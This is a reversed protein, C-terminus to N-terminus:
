RTSKGKGADTKAQAFAARSKALLDGSNGRKAKVAAISDTLQQELETAPAPETYGMRDHIMDVTTGSPPEKVLERAAKAINAPTPELKKETLFHAFSDASAARNSWEADQAQMQKHAQHETIADELKQVAAPDPHTQARLADVQAVLDPPLTARADPTFPAWPEPTGAPGPEWVNGPKFDEATARYQDPTPLNPVRAAAASAPPTAPAPSLAAPQEAPASIGQYAARQKIAFETLRANTASDFKTPMREYAADETAQAATSARMDALAQEGPSLSAAAPTKAPLVKDLVKGFRNALSIAHAAGPHAMGVIDAATGSIQPVSDPLWNRVKQAVAKGAAAAEPTAATAFPAVFGAASGIMGSYNGADFQKQMRAATATAGTGVVPLNRIDPHGAFNKLQDKFSSLIEGAAHEGMDGRDYADKVQDIVPKIAGEYFSRFMGQTEAPADPTTSGGNRPRMDVPAPAYQSWPGAPPASAAPAAAAYQEWPGPM